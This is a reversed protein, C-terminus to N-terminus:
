ADTGNAFMAKVVRVVVLMIYCQRHVAIGKGALGSSSSPLFKYRTPPATVIDKPRNEEGASSVLDRRSDSM